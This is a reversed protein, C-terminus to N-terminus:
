EPTAIFGTSTFDSNVIVGVLKGAKNIGSIQTNPGAPDDVTTFTSGSLIFGHQINNVDFYSGAIEGSKNISNAQAFLMNAPPTYYTLKGNKWTFLVNTNTQTACNGVVVGDDNIAPDHTSACQDPLLTVYVGQIDAYIAIVTSDPNFNGVTDFAANIGTVTQNTLATSLAAFGLVNDQFMYNNTGDNVTGVVGGTSNIASPMTTVYGPLQINARSGAATIFIGQIAGGSLYAYGVIRNSDDIGTLVTSTAGPYQFSTFKYTAAPALAPLLALAALISRFRSHKKIIAESLEECPLM